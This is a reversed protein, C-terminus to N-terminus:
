GFYLTRIKYVNNDWTIYDRERERECGGWDGGRCGGEGAGGRGGGIGLLALRSLTLGKVPMTDSSFLWYLVVFNSIKLAKEKRKRMLM